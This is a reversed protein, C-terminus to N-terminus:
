KKEDGLTKFFAIQEEMSQPKRGLFDDVTVRKGDRLSRGSMNTITAMLAANRINDSEEPPEIRLYAQWYIFEDWTMDMESLTKGLLFALRFAALLV